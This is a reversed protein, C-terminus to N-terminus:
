KLHSHSDCELSCQEIGSAQTGAIMGQDLVVAVHKVLVAPDGWVQMLKRNDRQDLFFGTKQGVVVDARFNVGNETFNVPASPTNGLISRGRSASGSRCSHCAANCPAEQQKGLCVFYHLQEYMMWPMGTPTILAVTRM